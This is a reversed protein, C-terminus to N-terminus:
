IHDAPVVGEYKEGYEELMARIKRLKLAWPEDREAYMTLDIPKQWLNDYTDLAINKIKSNRLLLDVVEVSHGSCPILFLHICPKKGSFAGLM